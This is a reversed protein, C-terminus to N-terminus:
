QESISASSFESGHTAAMMSFHARSATGAKHWTHSHIFIHCHAAVGMEMAESLTKQRGDRGRLALSFSLDKLPKLYVPLKRAEDRSDNLLGPRSFSMVMVCAHNKLM